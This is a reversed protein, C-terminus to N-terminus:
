AKGKGEGPTVTLFRRVIDQVEVGNDLQNEVLWEGEKLKAQEIAKRARTHMAAHISRYVGQCPYAILGLTGAGTKMTLNVFGRMRVLLEAVRFPKGVVDDMGATLAMDIQQQRVNATVGIVPIREQLLGERELKRIEAVATLGNMIPMEWDMLILSLEIPLADDYGHPMPETSPVHYTEKRAISKSLPHIHNWCTTKPLFDLAERGHNAVSVVCGLGRLQKALVRQNVLNDEVILVHLTEPISKTRKLELLDPGQPLGLLDPQVHAHKTPVSRAYASARRATPSPCKTDRIDEGTLTRLPPLPRASQNVLSRHKLDEPFVQPLSDKRATKPQTQRTKIYFSFTSGKGSTSSLGIAGGQLETLRRSIFLGLGSGGYHIHTRPSAQSFRTFLTGKEEESLGRGTDTVSFQLYILEESQKWDDELHKDHGVLREDIFQIGGPASTPETESAYLAVKISKVRELRTFKIANTLLNILVQLVRTPDLSAWKVDMDRYSQDVVLTIDIGAAKAEADFMKVAHRAVNEPQAVVPTMDLLGSDLKSITLIDDVIHRM